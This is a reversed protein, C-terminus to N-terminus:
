TTSSTCRTTEAIFTLPLEQYHSHDEWVYVAEAPTTWDLASLPFYEYSHETQHYSETLDSGETSSDPEENSPGRSAEISLPAPQVTTNGSFGYNADTLSAMVDEFTNDLGNELHPEVALGHTEQQFSQHFDCHNYGELLGPTWDENLSWTAAKSPPIDSPLMQTPDGGILDVQGLNVAIPEDINTSSAQVVDNRQRKTIQRTDPQTVYSKPSRGRVDIPASVAKCLTTEESGAMCKIELVLRFRQQPANRRNSKTTANRFHLRDWSINFPCPDSYRDPNGKPDLKIPEPESDESQDAQTGTVKRGPPVILKVNEGALTESASLHVVVSNIPTVPKGEGAELRADRPVYARGVVKLMNRRYCTLSNMQHRHNLADHTADQSVFLMGAVQASIDCFVTENSGDLLRRRSGEVTSFGLLESSRDRVSQDHKDFELAHRTSATEQMGATSSAIRTNDCQLGAVQPDIPIPWDAEFTGDPGLVDCPTDLDLIEFLSSDM